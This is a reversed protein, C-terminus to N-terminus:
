LLNDMLKNHEKKRIMKKHESKILKELYDNKYKVKEDKADEFLEQLMDQTEVTLTTVFRTKIQRDM